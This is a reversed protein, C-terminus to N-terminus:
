KKKRSETCPRLARPTRVGGLSVSSLFSGSMSAADYFKASGFSNTSGVRSLREPAQVFEEDGGTGLPPLESRPAPYGRTYVDYKDDKFLAAKSTLQLKDAAGFVSGVGKHMALKVKDTVSKPLLRGLTSDLNQACTALRKRQLATDLARARRLM